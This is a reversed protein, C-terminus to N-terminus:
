SLFSVKCQLYHAAEAKKADRVGARLLTEVEKVRAEAVDAQRHAAEAAELAARVRPSGLVQSQLKAICTSLREVRVQLAINNGEMSQLQQRTRELVVTEAAAVSQIRTLEVAMKMISRKSVAPDFEQQFSTDIIVVAKDARSTLLQHEAMLVTAIQSADRKHLARQYKLWADRTNSGDCCRVSPTFGAPTRQAWFWKGVATFDPSSGNKVSLMALEILVGRLVSAPLM